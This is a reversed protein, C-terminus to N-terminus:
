YFGNGHKRTNFWRTSEDQPIKKEKFDKEQLFQRKIQSKFIELNEAAKRRNWEKKLIYVATCAAIGGLIYYITKESPLKDGSPSQKNESFTVFSPLFLYM